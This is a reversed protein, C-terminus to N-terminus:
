FVFDEISKSLFCSQAFDLRSSLVVVVVLGMEGVERFWM